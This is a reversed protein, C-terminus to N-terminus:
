NEINNIDNTLNITYYMYPILTVVVFIPITFISNGSLLSFFSIVLFSALFIPNTINYKIVIYISYALYFIISFFGVFGGYLLAAILPNHPYDYPLFTDVNFRKAYKSLYSFDKGIIKDSVSYSTSFLQWGYKWRELRSGYTTHEYSIEKVKQEKENSNYEKPWMESYMKKYDAEPEIITIYRFSIATIEKKYPLGYVGIAKATYKRVIFPAAYLFYVQLILLIAGLIVFNGRREWKNTTLYKYVVSIFQFVFILILIMIGRRSGSYFINLTVFAFLLYIVYKYYRNTFNFPHWLLIFMALLMAVAYFNYDTSLSFGWPYKGHNLLFPVYIGKLMLWFKIFSLLCIFSIFYLYYRYFRNLAENYNEPKVNSGLLLVLLSCIICVNFVEKIVVEKLLGIDGLVAIVFWLVMIFFPILVRLQIVDLQNIYSKINHRSLYFAIAISCLLFPLVFPIAMRLIFLCFAVALTINIYRQEKM